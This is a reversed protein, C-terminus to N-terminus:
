TETGAADDVALEQEALAPQRLNRHEADRRIPFARCDFICSIRRALQGYDERDAFSPYWLEPHFPSTFAIKSASFMTFSGKVEVRAPYRDLIMLLHPLAIDSHGRFEEFICNREGQYGDFWGKQNSFHIYCPADSLWQRARFSKGTATAGFYVRVEPPDVRDPVTINRLAWMGRHYRIYMGPNSRAVSSMSDGAIISAAVLHLDSRTGPSSRTGNELFATKRATKPLKSLVAVVNQFKLEHSLLKLLPSLVKDSWNLTGKSTSPVLQVTYTHSSPGSVFPTAFSKWLCPLITKPLAFTDFGIVPIQGLNNPLLVQILMPHLFLHPVLLVFLLLLVQHQLSLVVFHLDEHLVPFTKHTTMQYSFVLLEHILPPPSPQVSGSPVVPSRSCPASSSRRESKLSAASVAVTERAQSYPHFFVRLLPRHSEAIVSSEAPTVHSSPVTSSMGSSRSYRPFVPYGRFGSPPRVLSRSPLFIDGTSEVVDASLASTQRSVSQGSPHVSPVRSPPEPDVAHPTHVTDAAVASGVSAAFEPSLTLNSWRRVRQSSAPSALPSSLSSCSINSLSSARGVPSARVRHPNGMELFADAPFRLRFNSLEFSATVPVIQFSPFQSALTSTSRVNTLQVYGEDDSVCGVFGFRVLPWQFLERFWEFHGGVLAAPPSFLFSRYNRQSHSSSGVSPTSAVSSTNGNNAHAIRNRDQRSLYYGAGGGNDPLLPPGPPYPPPPPVPPPPFSRPQGDPEAEQPPEPPLPLGFDLRCLTPTRVRSQRAVLEPEPPLPAPLPCPFSPSFSAHELPPDRALLTDNFFRQHAARKKQFSPAFSPSVFPVVALCSSSANCSEIATFDARTRRHLLPKSKQKRPRHSRWYGTGVAVLRLSVSLVM